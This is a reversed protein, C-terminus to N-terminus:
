ILASAAFAAVFACAILILAGLKSHAPWRCALLAWGGALSAAVPWFLRQFQDDIGCALQIAFYILASAGASVAFRRPPADAALLGLWLVAGAALLWAYGRFLLTTGLGNAIPAIAAAVPNGDIRLSSVNAAQDTVVEPAEGLWRLLRNAHDIRHRLYAGPHAIIAGAWAGWLGEKPLAEAVFACRGDGRWQSMGCQLIQTEDARTWRGPLLNRGIRSSMDGLDFAILARHRAGDFAGRDMAITAALLLVPVLGAALWRVWRPRPALEEAFLYLPPAAAPIAALRLLAGYALAALAGATSLALARGAVARELMLAFAFLWACALASEGNVTRFFDFLLPFFGMLPALAGWSTGADIMAKGLLFLASWFALLHLAFLGTVGLGTPRVGLWAFDAPAYGPFFAAVSLLFGFAAITFATRRVPLVLM